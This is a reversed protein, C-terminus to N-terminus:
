SKKLMKDVKVLLAAAALELRSVAIHKLPLVRSKELVFTVHVVDQINVQRNYSVSGYGSESADVFHHLQACKPTGYNKPKM